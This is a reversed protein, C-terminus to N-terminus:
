PAAAPITTGDDTRVTRSGLPADLQVTVPYHVGLDTSTGGPEKARVKVVVASSDQSVVEARATSGPRAVVELTLTTGASHGLDGRARPRHHPGTGAHRGGAAARVHPAAPSAAPHRGDRAAPGPLWERLPTEVDDISM